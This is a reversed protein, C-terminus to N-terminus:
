CPTGAECAATRTSRTHGTRAPQSLQRNELLCVQLDLLQINHLAEQQPAARRQRAPWQSRGPLWTSDPVEQCADETEQEGPQSPVEYRRTSDAAKVSQAAM